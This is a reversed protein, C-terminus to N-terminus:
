GPIAEVLIDLRYQMSTGGVSAYATSYTMAANADVRLFLSGTQVTTTTNGTMATGAQTLAVTETWGMTITLSSSTTAARTIRAVYSLRYYGATLDPMPVPTASIAASQGTLTVVGLRSPSANTRQQQELWWDIHEQSFYPSRTKQGTARDTTEPSVALDYNFPSTLAM